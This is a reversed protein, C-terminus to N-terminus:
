VFKKLLAEADDATVPNVLKVVLGVIEEDKMDKSEDVEKKKGKGLSEAHTTRFPELGKGYNSKSELGLTDLKFLHSNNLDSPM